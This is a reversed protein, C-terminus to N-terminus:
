PGPLCHEARRGPPPPPRRGRTMHSAAEMNDYRLTRQFSLDYKLKAPELNALRLQENFPSLDFVFPLMNIMDANDSARRLISLLMEVATRRIEHRNTPILMKAIM